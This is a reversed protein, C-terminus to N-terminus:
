AGFGQRLLSRARREFTGASFREANALAGMELDHRLHSDTLMRSLAASLEGINGPEVFIGADRPVTDLGDIRYGVVPTGCANAEVYTIGFGEKMSPSAFVWSRQLIERKENDSVYGRLECPLDGILEGLERIRSGPGAIIMRCNPIEKHVSSFARILHDVKKVGKPGDYRGIYSLLPSDSKRGPVFYNTDIGPPLIIISSSPIGIRVLDNMTLRSVTIVKAARRYVLPLAIRELSVGIAAKHIPHSQFYAVGTLHHVLVIIPRTHEVMPSLMPFSVVNEVLVDTVNQLRSTYYRLISFVSNAPSVNIRIVDVGDVVENSPLNYDAESGCVLTVRHGDTVWAKGLQRIYERAGGKVNGNTPGRLSLITINM